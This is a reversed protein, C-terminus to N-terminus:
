LPEKELLRILDNEVERGITHGRAFLVEMVNRSQTYARTGDSFTRVKAESKSQWAANKMMLLSYRYEAEREHLERARGSFGRRITVRVALYVQKMGDLSKTIQTEIEQKLEESNTAFEDRVSQVTADHANMRTKVRTTFRDSSRVLGAKKVAVVKAATDRYLDRARAWHESALHRAILEDSHVALRERLRGYIEVVQRRSLGSAKVAKAIPRDEAFCKIVARTVSEPNPSNPHLKNM